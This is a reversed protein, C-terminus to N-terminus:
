RWTDIGAATLDIVTPQAFYFSGVMNMLIRFSLTTSGSPVQVIHWRKIVPVDANTQIKDRLMYTALQNRFDVMTYGDVGSVWDVKAAYGVAYWNGVTVGSAISATIISDVTTASKTIKFWNGAIGDASASELAFSISGSDGSNASWNNPIGDDSTDTLLLPNTLKYATASDAANDLALVPEWPIFTDGALLKTAIHEGFLKAGDVNLHLGDGTHYATPLGGTVEDWMERPVRIFPIGRAACMNCLGANYLVCNGQTTGDGAPILETVIPLMGRDLLEDLIQSFTALKGAHDTSAASNRGAQILCHSPMAGYTALHTDYNAVRTLTQSLQESGAAEAPHFRWRGQSAWIVWAFFGDGEISIGGGSAAVQSAGLATLRNGAGVVTM